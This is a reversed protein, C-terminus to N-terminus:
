VLGLAPLREAQRDVRERGSRSNPPNLVFVPQCWEADATKVPHRKRPDFLHAIMM